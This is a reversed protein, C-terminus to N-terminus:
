RFSKIPFKVPFKQPLEGVQMLIALLLQGDGGDLHLEHGSSQYIAEYLEHAMRENIDLLDSSSCFYRLFIAFFQSFRRSATHNLVGHEDCPFNQKFWSLAMTIRYDRRVDM